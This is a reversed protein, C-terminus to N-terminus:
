PSTQAGSPNLWRDWPFFATNSRLARSTSWRRWSELRYLKSGCCSIRLSFCDVKALVHTGGSRSKTQWRRMEGNSEGSRPEKTRTGKTWTHFGSWQDTPSSRRRWIAHRFYAAEDGKGRYIEKLNRSSLMRTHSFQSGSVPVLSMYEAMLAGLVEGHRRQRFSDCLYFGTRSCFHISADKPRTCLITPLM